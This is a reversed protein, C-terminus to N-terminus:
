KLGERLVVDASAILYLDGASTPGLPDMLLRVAPYQLDELSSGGLTVLSPYTTSSTVSGSVLNSSEFNRGDRLSPNIGRVRFNFRGGSSVAGAHLRIEIAVKRDPGVDIRPLLVLEATGPSVLFSYNFVRYRFLSRREEGPVAAAATVPQM